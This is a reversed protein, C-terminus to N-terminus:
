CAKAVRRLKTLTALCTKNIKAADRCFNATSAINFKPAGGDDALDM